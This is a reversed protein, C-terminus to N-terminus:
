VPETGALVDRMALMANPSAFFHALAGAEAPSARMLREVLWLERVQDDNLQSLDSMDWRAIIQALVMAIQDEDTVFRPVKPTPSILTQLTARIVLPDPAMTRLSSFASSVLLSPYTKKPEKSTLSSPGVQPFLAITAAAISLAGFIGLVMFALSVAFEQLTITVVGPSLAASVLLLRHKM